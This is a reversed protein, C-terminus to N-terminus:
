SSLVSYEVFSRSDLWCFDDSQRCIRGESASEARFRRANEVVEGTRIVISRLKGDCEGPHATFQYVESCAVWSNGGDVSRKLGGTLGGWPVYLVNPNAPHVM